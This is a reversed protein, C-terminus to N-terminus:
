LELSSSLTVRAGQHEFLSKWLQESLNIKEDNGPTRTAVIYIELQSLEPLKPGDQSLKEITQEPSDVMKGITNKWNAGYFSFQKSNELMDSYIILYKRDADIRNLKICERTVKQYIKSADTGWDANELLTSFSQQLQEFFKDVEDKRTLPNEGMMGTEGVKIKITESKSDSVENILSLKIEGGSFGGTETDLKMLEMLRPLNEAVFNENKFREDTIDILVSIATKQPTETKCSSFLIALGISFFITQIRKM